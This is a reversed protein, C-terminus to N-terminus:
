IVKERSLVDRIDEFASKINGKEFEIRHFGQINSPVTCGKEVLEIAKKIGLESQCLGLEHIVNLRPHLSENGKEDTVSDEGTLVLFAIAAQRVRSMVHDYVQDGGATEEEYATVPLGLTEKIFIRLELWTKDRGHGIFVKNGTIHKIAEPTRVREIQAITRQIVKRLERVTAAARMSWKIKADYRIHPPIRIDQRKAVPDETDLAAPKMSEVTEEPSPIILREAQSAMPEFISSHNLQAIKIIAVVDTKREYFSDVWQLTQEFVNRIDGRTIGDEIAFDVESDSYRRWGSDKGTERSPEAENEWNLSRYMDLTPSGFDKCYVNALYGSWSGFWANEVKKINTLLSDLTFRYALDNAYKTTDQLSEDIGRLEDILEM